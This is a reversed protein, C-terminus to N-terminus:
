KGLEIKKRKASEKKEKDAKRKKLAVEKEKAKRRANALEGSLVDLADAGFWPPRDRPGWNRLHVKMVSRYYRRYAAVPEGEIRYEEAMAQCPATVAHESVLETLPTRWEEFLSEEPINAALWKLKEECGHKKDGFRFKFEDILAFGYNAVFRYNNVHARTWIALPNNLCFPKYLVGKENLRAAKTADFAWHANTLLQTAELILKPVHKNYHYM